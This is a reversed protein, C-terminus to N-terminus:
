DGFFSSIPPRAVSGSSSPVGSPASAPRSSTTTPVSVRDNSGLAARLAADYDVVKGNLANANVITKAGSVANSLRAHATADDLGQRRLALLADRYTQTGQIRANGQDIRQQGQDIRAQEEPKPAIAQKGVRTEGTRNNFYVPNGTEPDTGQFGWTGAGEQAIRQQELGLHAGAIGTQAGLHEMEANHYRATEAATADEHKARQQAQEISNQLQKSRLEIDAKRGAITADREDARDARDMQGSYFQLGQLAGHGINEVGNGHGALMGLGAAMLGLWPAQDRLQQGHGSPQTAVIGSPLADAVDNPQDGSVPPLDHPAEPPLPLDDDLAGGDDRRVIAGGRKSAASSDSPLQNAQAAAAADTAAKASADQSSVSNSDTVFDPHYATSIAPPPKTGAAIGSFYNQLAPSMASGSSAGSMVPSIGSGGGGTAIGSGGGGGVSLIPISSQGGASPAVSVSVGGGGALGHTGTAATPEHHWPHNDNDAIGGGRRYPITAAGGAATVGDWSSIGSAAAGAGAGSNAWQNYMGYAALGASGLGAITSLASPTSIGTSSGTGGSAAGTGEAIGALWSTNQYPYAQQQLFQEYPVNLQEQAIQQQLGGSQLQASAGALTTNQAETGLQGYGFGAQSNLWANAENAGLQAQQQSNFEGLAQSYGTNELGAIVPAQAAQQQGALVGQAVAARDGGYAGQSVANGTLAARQQANTNAFQAETAGVVQQTYPSEYQSVASPSFQQVGSWLPTTAANFSRAAQNIYPATIGQSSNITNMASIQDPSLGAVINGQYQQLPQSAVNQAQGLVNQYAALVSAPPSSQQVVTNTGSGGSSM